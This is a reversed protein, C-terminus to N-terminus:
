RTAFRTAFCCRSESLGKARATRVYDSSLEEIVSTRVMRALIAALAAGLTIAPLMLHAAGGRGSVPLWGLIVSFVLILVPGLAFNPVSLGLLTFVGVAHDTATGRREAALNRRSHRDGRLGAAGRAGTRADRSLALSRRADGAASLSVIRRSQRASRRRSLARVARSIPRDLGLAHRLQQLDEARAGEGLMQQVPDGPVIHALLFVMTVILWLAPLALLLRLSLYRIMERSAGEVPHPASRCGACASSGSSPPPSPVLSPGPVSRIPKIKVRSVRRRDMEMVTFRYGDAEFSEGGRPIFGLRSLVFGGITEYSPDDPLAINYQAELDRVKIAADFIMGGDPLSLPQEVVDFEDHIEGVMQELIDELTVLGLISGFEDVVMALGIRRTRFELLLRSAPKTEPVILVERLLKRLDFPPAPQDEEARRARDLLVWIMDKIHVFGLIHDLSGEYVPIRSRQTTAFMRMAEELGADAPLAHMDPRPVMIERVQVQGLEIANQMFQADREALVGRDRAQQVMVQLEEASRVLTHSHPAVIGLAGVIKDSTTDFLDIAWSFTRLFWHFPRAILLAVREARALSLAKPVLEGFVVQLFTLLGFVVVLAIAHALIPAWPRTFAQVFPHVIAALTIEGLYGLSLSAITLGVQVGSVVRGLDGLLQEVIKARPDGKEVLQRVRSLRVAVLSFETAAFFANVGILFLMGFVHLATM